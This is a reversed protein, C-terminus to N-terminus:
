TSPMHYEASAVLLLFLKPLILFQFTFDKELKFCYACKDKQHIHMKFSIQYIYTKDKPLIHIKQYRSIHENANVILM